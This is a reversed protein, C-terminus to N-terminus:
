KHVTKKVQVILNKALSMQKQRQTNEATAEAYRNVLDKEQLLCFVCCKLLHLLYQVNYSFCLLKFTVEKQVSDALTLMSPKKSVTAGADELTSNYKDVNTEYEQVSM